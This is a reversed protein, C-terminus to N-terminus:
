QTAEHLSRLFGRFWERFEAAKRRTEPAFPVARGGVPMGRELLAERVGSPGPFQDIQAVFEALMAALRAAHDSNGSTIADDLAVLLEPVACACGSVFGDAGAARGRATTTDNGVLLAFEKRQRLQLLQAMYEWNGSSDKIGAAAGSELLELSVEIPIANNFAPLNYLLVPLRNESEDIFRLLFERIEPPQYRFYIPPQILLAAAGNSAADEAIRVSESLSSHTANVIVPVRSRKVAMHTLRIRDETAFHTFEGTAGFVAIGRVKHSCLFDIIELSASLDAESNQPRTPTIAAANAGSICVM